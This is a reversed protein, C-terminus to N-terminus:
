PRSDKKLSRTYEVFSWEPGDQRAAETWQGRDYDPFKTDGTLRQHVETIFLKDAVPLAQHYVERGGIVFVIEEHRRRCHEVAAEFGDFTLVEPPATFRTNRTLVINTRGPLPKGISEYTKRGMIIPHGMTLHKFRMLDDSIHWPIKGKDGITGDASVAVILAVQMGANADPNM